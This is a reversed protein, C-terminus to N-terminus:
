YRQWQVLPVSRRSEILCGNVGIALPLPPIKSTPFFQITKIAMRQELGPYKYNKRCIKQLVDFFTFFIRKIKTFYIQKKPASKWVMLVSLMDHFIPTTCYTRLDATSIDSSGEADTTPPLLNFFLFFYFALVFRNIVNVMKNCCVNIKVSCFSLEKERIQSHSYFIM